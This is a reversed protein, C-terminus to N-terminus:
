ADRQTTRPRGWVELYSPERRGRMARHERGAIGGVNASLESATACGWGPVTPHSPQMRSKEEVCPIKSGSAPASPTMAGKELRELRSQLERNHRRMTDVDSEMEVMSSQLACGTLSVFLVMGGLLKNRFLDM